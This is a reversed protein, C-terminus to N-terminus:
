GYSCRFLSMMVGLIREVINKKADLREWIDVVKGRDDLRDDCRLM